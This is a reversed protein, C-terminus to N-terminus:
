SLVHRRRAEALAELQSHAGLELLIARIHNRVTTEAIDLRQAIVKAPAGNALLELVQAQRPTLAVAPEAREPEQAGVEPGNRLLHLIVPEGNDRVSITSVTVWRRGTATRILLRQGAVGWGQCALRANSCGAHCVLGGRQDVAGLLEWCHRGLAEEAQIGTLEELARNWSRIRLDSGFAFLADGSRFPGAGVDAM